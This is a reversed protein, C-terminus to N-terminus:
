PTLNFGEYNNDDLAGTTTSTENNIAVIPQDSEVIVACNANSQNFPNSATFYNATSPSYFLFAAGSAISGTKSPDSIAVFNSGAKCTFTATWNTAAVAGVNQIQLGSTAGYRADKYLPVSIKTTALKDPIATYTIGAKPSGSVEQENVISVFEGTASITAAAICNEPLNTNTTGLTVFTHAAGDAVNTKSDTYENGACTGARGKYVIDIDIPGGSTNQVQIGTFRGYRDNKVVPAYAKDDFDAATSGRTSNLVIAPNSTTDHEMVVGALKKGSASSVELSGIRDDNVVGSPPFTSSNFVSFVVMQNSGITPLNYTHVDGSRMTFTAIVDTASASDANQIYFSSTKGYHDGKALPFYLADAVGSGDTGQYSGVAKGGTTGLGSTPQNTVNVIAKVAKSSSVVASGQFGSPMNDFDGIPTFTYAAGQAITTSESYTASSTSDYATIVIDASESSVNQVQEGSWWGGGPIGTQASVASVVLLIAMALVIILLFKKM